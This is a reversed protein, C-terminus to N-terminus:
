GSNASEHAKAVGPHAFVIQGTQAYETRNALGDVRLSPAPEVVHDTVARTRDGIGPPLGFSAHELDGSHRRHREFWTGNPTRDKALLSSNDVLLAMLERRAFLAEEDEFVRPRGHHAGQILIRISVELRVPRLVRTDIEGTIGCSDIIVAVYPDDSTSVVDDLYGTVADTSSLHLGSQDKVGGDGLSRGYPQRVFHLAVRDMHDNYEIMTELRRLIEDRIDASM